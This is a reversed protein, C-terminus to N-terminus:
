LIVRKIGDKMRKVNFNLILGLKYEGLKMYTLIQAFHVENIAEVSKIEIVVREEVQLDIRYGHNLKIEDYIIPRPVESRVRLKSQQLEHKLCHNYASELLGPGLKSHVKIAKKIINGSIENLQM